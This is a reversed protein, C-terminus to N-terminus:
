GEQKAAGKEEGKNKKKKRTKRGGAGRLMKFEVTGEWVYNEEGTRRMRM